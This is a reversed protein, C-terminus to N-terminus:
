NEFVCHNLVIGVGNSNPVIEGYFSLPIRKGKEVLSQKWGEGVFCSTHVGNKDVIGVLYGNFTPQAIEIVGSVHMIENDYRKTADRFEIATRGHFLDIFAKATIGSEEARAAGAIHPPDPEIRATVHSPRDHSRSSVLLGIAPSIVVYSLYLLLIALWWRFDSTVSEVSHALAPKIRGSLRSWRLGVFAIIAGTVLLILASRFEAAVMQSVGVGVFGAGLFELFLTATTRHGDGPAPATSSIPSHTDMAPSDLAAEPTQEPM